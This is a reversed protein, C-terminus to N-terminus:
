RRDRFAPMVDRAFWRAQEKFEKPAMGEALPDDHARGPYRGEFDRIQEIVHPRPRLAHASPWATASPPHARRGRAHGVLTGGRRRLPRLRLARVVQLARRIRSVRQVAEEVSDALLPGGGLLHGALALVAGGPGGGSILRPRGPRLHRATSPSWPRSVRHAIYPLTKGSARAALARRASPPPRPVVTIKDLKYGRYEVPRSHHSHEGKHSWSEENFCKLLVEMQEEFLEQNAQTSCPRGVDGGRPHPVRAGVGMIVRGGTMYRRLM